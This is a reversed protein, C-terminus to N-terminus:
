CHHWMHASSPHTTTAGYKTPQAITEQPPPLAPPQVWIGPAGAPSTESESDDHSRDAHAAPRAVISLAGDGTVLALADDANPTPHALPPTPSPSDPQEAIPVVGPQLSFAIMSTPFLRVNICCPKHTTILAMLMRYLASPRLCSPGENHMFSYSGQDLIDMIAPGPLSLLTDYMELLDEKVRTAIQGRCDVQLTYHLVLTFDDDEMVFLKNLEISTRATGLVDIFLTIAHDYEMM